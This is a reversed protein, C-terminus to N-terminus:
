IVDVVYLENENRKSKKFKRWVTVKPEKLFESLKTVGEIIYIVNSNKVKV